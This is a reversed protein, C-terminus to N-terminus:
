VQSFMHQPDEDSSGLLGSRILVWFMNKGKDKFFSYCVSFIFHSFAKDLTILGERASCLM